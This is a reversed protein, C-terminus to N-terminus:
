RGGGGGRTQAAVWVAATIRTKYSCNREATLYHQMKSNQNAKELFQITVHIEMGNAAARTTANLVAARGDEM